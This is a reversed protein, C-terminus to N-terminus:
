LCRSVMITSRVHNVLGASARGTRIGALDEKVVEIAKAMKGEANRLVEDASM